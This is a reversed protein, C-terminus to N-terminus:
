RRVSRCLAIVQARVTEDDVAEAYCQYWVRTLQRVVYTARWPHPDTKSAFVALTVAFGANVHERHEITVLKSKHRESIHHIFADPSAVYRDDARELRVTTRGDSMQWADTAADYTSSWGAPLEMTAEALARSPVAASGVAGGSPDRNGCAVVLAVICIALKM